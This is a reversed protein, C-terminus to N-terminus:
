PHVLLQPHQGMVVKVMLTQIEQKVQAVGAEQM